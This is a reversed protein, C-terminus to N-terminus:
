RMDTWQVPALQDLPEAFVTHDACGLGGSGDRSAFKIAVTRHLILDEAVYVVGMGGAGLRDVIRYHSVTEGIVPEAAILELVVRGANPIRSEIRIPEPM